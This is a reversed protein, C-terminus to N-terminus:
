KLIQCKSNKLLVNKSHFIPTGNNKQVFTNCQYPNYYVDFRIKRNPIKTSYEDCIIYAHVNKQKELLVRKRGSEYVKFDAWPLFIEEEHAYLRYGRKSADYKLISFCAKHLNRYIRFKGQQM